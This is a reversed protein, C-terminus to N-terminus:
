SKFRVRSKTWHQKEEAMKRELGYKIGEMQQERLPPKGGVKKGKDREGVIKSRSAIEKRIQFWM